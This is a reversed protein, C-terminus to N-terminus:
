VIKGGRGVKLAFYISLAIGTAVYLREWLSRPKTALTAAFFLPFVLGVFRPMSMLRGTSLPVLLSSAAYLLDRLPARRRVMLYVLALAAV